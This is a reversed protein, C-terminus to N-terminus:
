RPRASSTFTKRWPSPTSRPSTSRTSTPRAPTPCAPATTRSWRRRPASLAELPTAGSFMHAKVTATSASLGSAYVEIRYCRTAVFANAATLDHHRHGGGTHPPAQQVLRPVRPTIAGVRCGGGFMWHDAGMAGTASWGARSSTPRRCVTGGSSGTSPRLRSARVPIGMSSAQSTDASSASGVPTTVVHKSTSRPQRQRRRQAARPPDGGTPVEDTTSSRSPPATLTGRQGHDHGPLGRRSLDRVGNSAGFTSQDIFRNNRITVGVLTDGFTNGM